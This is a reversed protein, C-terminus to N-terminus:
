YLLIDISSFIFFTNRTTIFQLPQQLFSLHPGINVQKDLFRSFSVKNGTRKKCRFQIIFTMVIWQHWLLSLYPKTWLLDNQKQISHWRASSHKQSVVTGSFITAMGDSVMNSCTTGLQSFFETEYLFGTQIGSIIILM